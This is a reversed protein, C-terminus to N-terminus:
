PLRAYLANAANQLDSAAVELEGDGALIAIDAIDSAADYAATIAAEVDRRLDPTWLPSTM